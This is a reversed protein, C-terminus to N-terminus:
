VSYLFVRLLLTTAILYLVPSGRLSHSSNDSTQKKKPQKPAPPSTPVSVSFFIDSATTSRGNEYEDDDGSGSGSGSGMDDLDSSDQWQVDHGSYALSLKNTIIKLTLILQNIVM